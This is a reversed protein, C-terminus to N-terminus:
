KKGTTVSGTSSARFQTRRVMALGFGCLALLLASTPEPVVNVSVHDIWYDRHGEWAVRVGVAVWAADSTPEITAQYSYEAWGAVADTSGITTFDTQVTPDDAGLFAKVEFNNFDSQDVSFLQFRVLLPLPVGAEAPFEREIWLTGDDGFGDGMDFKLSSSDDFGRAPDLTVVGDTGTESEKHWQQQWGEFTGDFDFTQAAVPPLRLTHVILLLAAVCVINHCACRESHSALPKTIM